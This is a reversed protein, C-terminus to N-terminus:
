GDFVILRFSNNFKNLKGDKNFAKNLWERGTQGVAFDVREGHRIVYLRRPGHPKETPRQELEVEDSSDKGDMTRSKVPTQATLLGILFVFYTAGLVALALRRLIRM